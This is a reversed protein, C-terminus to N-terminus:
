GRESSMDDINDIDSTDESDENGGLIKFMKLRKIVQLFTKQCLLGLFGTLFTTDM